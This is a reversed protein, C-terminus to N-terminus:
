KGVGSLKIAMPIEPADSPTAITAVRTNASTPVFSIQFTRTKGPEITQGSCGDKGEVLKFQGLGTVGISITGITLDAVEKTATNRVTFPATVKKGAKM